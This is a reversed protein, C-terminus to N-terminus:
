ADEDEKTDQTAVPLTVHYRNWNIDYHGFETEMNRIQHNGRDLIESRVKDYLERLHEQEPTLAAESGHGWMFGLHAEISSLAGIMTTQIKKSSIKYLRQRSSEKFRDEKEQKYSKSLQVLKLYEEDM